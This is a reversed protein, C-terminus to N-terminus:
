RDLTGTIENFHGTWWTGDEKNYMDVYGKAMLGTQEDYYYVNGAQTPYLTTGKNADCVEYWGKIMSGDWDYRVWKGTKDQMANYVEDAMKASRFGDEGYSTGDAPNSLLSVDRKLEDTCSDEQSYIYPMFVEKNVAVLGDYCVDLWYWKGTDPDAIERGRLTGAYWFCKTDTSIGQRTDKEYWYRVVKGGLVDSRYSEKKYFGERLWDDEDYHNSTDKTNATSLNKVTDRVTKAATGTLTIVSGHRAARRNGNLDYCMVEKIGKDIFGSYKDFTTSDGTSAKSVWVGASGYPASADEPTYTALRDCYLFYQGSFKTLSPGEYGTVADDMVQEWKSSDGADNLDKIRFIENTVGNEKVVYYYWDGEQYLSADIHDDSVAQRGLSEDTMCPLKIKVAEGYEVTPLSIRSEAPDTDGPTFSEVKVIYPEMIDNLPDDGHWSAYYGASFVIWMTGEDDILFDPAVMDWESGYKESGAPKESLRVCTESGSDAYSWNILDKSFSLMPRVVQVGDKIPADGSIMWFYGDYYQIGPDHLTWDTRGPLNGAIIGCDPDDPYGDTFPESIEYFNWGDTSWYLTDTADADSTFFVGLMIEDTDASKAESSIKTFCLSSLVLSVALVASLIKFIKEKM